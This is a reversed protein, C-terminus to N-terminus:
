WSCGNGKISPRLHLVTCQIYISTYLDYFSLVGGSVHRPGAMSTDPPASLETLFQRFKGM